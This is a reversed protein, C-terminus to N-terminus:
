PALTRQWFRGDRRNLRVPEIGVFQVRTEGTYATEQLDPFLYKVTPSFAADPHPYVLAESDGPRSFRVFEAVQSADEFLPIPKQLESASVTSAFRLPMIEIGIEEQPPTGTRCWKEYLTHVRNRTFVPTESPPPPQPAGATLTVTERTHERESRINELREYLQGIWSPDNLQKGFVQRIQHPLEQTIENKFRSIKIRSEHHYDILTRIRQRARRAMLFAIVALVLAVLSLLYSVADLWAIEPLM